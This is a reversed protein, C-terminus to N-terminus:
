FLPLFRLGSSTVLEVNLRREQASIVDQQYLPSFSCGDVAGRVVIQVLMCYVSM